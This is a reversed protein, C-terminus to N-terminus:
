LTSLLYKLYNIKQKIKSFVEQNKMIRAERNKVTEEPYYFLIKEIIKRAENKKNQKILLVSLNIYNSPNFRNLEVAERFDSEAEIFKNQAYYIKGRLEYNLANGSDLAIAKQSAKLAKKLLEKGSENNSAAGRAYLIIGYQRLHKPNPNLFISKQFANEALALEGKSQFRMGESFYYGGYLFIIGSIILLFSIFIILGRLWNQKHEGLKNKATNWLNLFMTKKTMEVWRGASFFGKGTSFVIDKGNAIKLPNRRAESTRFSLFFSTKYNVIINYLLGLFMWFVLTNAGFHWDIDVSNHMLFALIGVFLPLAYKKEKLGNRARRCVSILFLVFFLLVFAGAESMMELYLNHAYKGASIPDKQYQPYIIGFTGLGSGFIPYDKFIEWAGRWYNLRINTSFDSEAFSKEIHSAFWFGGQKLFSIGTILVASLVIILVIDIFNGKARNYWGRIDPNPSQNNKIGEQYLPNPSKGNIGEQYLPNPSKGNIGGQYLPNPSKGYFYIFVPLVLLISLFAGRSGTLVFAALILILVFGPLVKGKMGKGSELFWCFALPLSFLLYGAFPNPWYFTSTLRVYSGTLYFYIGILSLAASVALFIKILFDIEKRKIKLNAAIFFLTGYSLYQLWVAFSNYPSISFFVTILSFILFLFLFFFPSLFFNKSENKKDAEEIGSFLLFALGIFALVALGILAGNGGSFFPPLAMLVVFIFLIIKKRFDIM